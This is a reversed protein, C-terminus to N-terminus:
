KELLLLGRSRMVKALTVLWPGCVCPDLTRVIEVDSADKASEAVMRGIVAGGYKSIFADAHAEIEAKRTPDISM